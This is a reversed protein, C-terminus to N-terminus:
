ARESYVEEPKDTTTRETLERLIDTAKFVAFWEFRNRRFFVCSRRSGCEKQAQGLASWIDLRETHKVEIHWPFDTIIDPSDPGGNFQQGRRAEFGHSRLLDKASLESRKGKQKSNIM